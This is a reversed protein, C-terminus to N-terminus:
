KTLVAEVAPNTVDPQARAELADLISGLVAQSEPSEIDSRNYRAYQEHVENTTLQVGRRALSARLATAAAQRQVLERSGHSALDALARQDAHTGLHGLFKTAPATMRQDHLTRRAASAAHHLDFLWGSKESLSALWELAAKTQETRVTVPTLGDRARAMLPALEAQLASTEHPRVLAEALNDGYVIREARRFQQLNAVVAVPLHATRADRRLLSLTEITTPRDLAPTIIVLETDPFNAALQFLDDGDNAMEVEYGLELLMGGVRQAEETRPDAVIARRQGMGNAFYALAETVWSSGPFPEAPELQLIAALAAFRVRSCPSRLARTLAAPRGTHTRLITADAKGGLQRAAELAVVDQGTTLAHDLLEELVATDCDVLAVKVQERDLGERRAVVELRAGWYLRRARPSTPLIALADGALREIHLARVLERPLTQLKVQATEADWSWHEVDTSILPDVEAKAGYLEQEAAALLRAAAQEPDPVEGYQHQFATAAASSLAANEAYASRLWYVSTHRAGMQDLVQIVEAQLAADGSGLAALLPGVADRELSVLAHQAAAHQQEGQPAKLAALLPQVAASGAMRLQVEAAYRVEPSEDGLKEVYNEVRAPDRAIREAAAAVAQALQAAAPELENVRALRLFSHMGLKGRLQGLQEDSLGAAVVAELWPLAHQPAGLDVLVLAARVREEPTTPNLDLVHQVTPDIPEPAAAQGLPRELLQAEAAEQARTTSCLHTSATTCAIAALVILRRRITM